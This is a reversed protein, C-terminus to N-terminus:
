KRFIFIFIFLAGGILGFYRSWINCNNLELIMRSRETLCKTGEHLLLTLWTTLVHVWLLASRGLFIWITPGVLPSYFINYDYYASDTVHKSKSNPLFFCLFTFDVAFLIPHLKTSGVSM